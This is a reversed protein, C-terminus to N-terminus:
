PTSPSQIKHNSGSLGGLRGTAPSSRGFLGRPSAKAGAGLRRPTPGPSAEPCIRHLRSTELLLFRPTPPGAMPLQTPYVLRTWHRAHHPLGMPLLNDTTSCASNCFRPCCCARTAGHLALRLLKTLCSRPLGTSVVMNGATGLGRVRDWSSRVTYITQPCIRSAVAGAM